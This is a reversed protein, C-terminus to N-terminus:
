EFFSFAKDYDKLGKYITGMGAIATGVGRRDNLEKKLDLAKQQYPLAQKFQGLQIFDTSISQYCFSIGKKNGAVEFLGLSKLHYQLANKYDGLDNYTNGINLCQGAMWVKDGPTPEKIKEAKYDNLSELMYHLAEKFNGLRKYYLGASFNYDTNVVYPTSPDTSLTKLATLFYLASDPKGTNMQVMVMQAYANSLLIRNNMGAAMHMSAYLYAKARAMDIRTYESALVNLAKNEVADKKDQQVIKLLSDIAPTQAWSAYFSLLLLYLSLFPRLRM